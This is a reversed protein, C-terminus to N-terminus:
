VVNRTNLVIEALGSDTAGSVHVNALQVMTDATGVTFAGTSKVISVPDGVGASSSAMPVVVHGRVLVDVMDNAGYKGENSGYTDPTKSPLRVTVGVFDAGTHSSANFPVIGTKTEDLAVPVGFAIEAGSKNALAVVVDDKNRAISGAWGNTFSSLVKGM